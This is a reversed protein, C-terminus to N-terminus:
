AIKLGGSDADWERKDYAPRAYEYSGGLLPSSIILDASAINCAVGVNWVAALRLLAKVDTDHPQSEMPDWFFILLDITGEAIKAGIQQDGGVPGSLFCTVLLGLEQQLMLGTTGTSYLVHKRLTGENFEAWALLDAKKSDHAVLVIHRQKHMQSGKM